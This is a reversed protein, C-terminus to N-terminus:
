RLLAVTDGEIKTTDYANDRLFRDVEAEEQGLNHSEFFIAEAPFRKFDISRIISADHGEADIVVLDITRGPWYQDLLDNVTLCPVRIQTLLAESKPFSRVEKLVHDRNFSSIRLYFLREELSLAELFEPSYTWFTTGENRASSIAANVFVLESRKVHEYNHKLLEFVRPLPEVLIGNWRDRVVFKRIPDWRLGDSAGIQLFNVRRNHSRSFADFFKDSATTNRSFRIALDYLRPKTKLYDKFVRIM